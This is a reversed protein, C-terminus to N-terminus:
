GRRAKVKKLSQSISRNVLEEVLARRYWESAIPTTRPKAEEVAVKAAEKILSETPRNGRIVSEARMARTPIPAAVLLVIRIDLCIQLTADMTLISAVGVVALEM